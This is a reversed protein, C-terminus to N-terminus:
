IVPLYLLGMEMGKMVAGVRSNVGLKQFISSIHYEVTRKSIHLEKAIEQNNKEKSILHLIKIETMTLTNLPDDTIFYHNPLLINGLYSQRIANIIKEFSDVKLLFASVGLNYVMRVCECCKINSFVIIKILDQYAEKINKIFDMGKSDNFFPDIVIVDPLKKELAKYATDVNNLKSTVNFDEVKGLCEGLAELIFPYNDIIMIKIKGNM